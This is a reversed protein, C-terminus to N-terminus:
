RGVIETQESDCGIRNARQRSSKEAVEAEPLLYIIAFRGGSFHQGGAPV